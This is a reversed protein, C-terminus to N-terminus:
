QETSGKADKKTKYGSSKQAKELSTKKEGKKPKFESIEDDDMKTAYITSGAPVPWTKLNKRTSTNLTNNGSTYKLKKTFIESVFVAGHQVKLAERLSKLTADHKINITYNNQEFNVVVSWNQGVKGKGGAGTLDGIRADIKDAKQIIAELEVNLGTKMTELTAVDDIAQLTDSFSKTSEVDSESESSTDATKVATKSSKPAMSSVCSLSSSFAFSIAPDKFWPSSFILM